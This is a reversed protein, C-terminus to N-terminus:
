EFRAPRKLQKFHKTLQKRRDALLHRAKEGGPKNAGPQNAREGLVIRGLKTITNNKTWFHL